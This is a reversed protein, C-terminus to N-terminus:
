NRNRAPQSARGKWAKIQKSYFYHKPPLKAAFASARSEWAKFDEKELAEPDDAISRRMDLVIAVFLGHAWNRKGGPLSDIHTQLRELMVSYSDGMSDSSLRRKFYNLAIERTVLEPEGAPNTATRMELVLTEALKLASKLKESQLKNPVFCALYGNQHDLLSIALHSNANRKTKDDWAGDNRMAKLADIVEEWKNMSEDRDSDYFRLRAYNTMAVIHQIQYDGNKPSKTVLKKRIEQSREYDQDAERYGPNGRGDEQLMVDGRSGFALALGSRYEDKTDDLQILKNWLEIAANYEKEAEQNQGQSDYLHGLAQYNRALLELVERNKPWRKRAQLLIEKAERYKGEVDGADEGERAHQAEAMLLRANALTLDDSHDPAFYYGALLGAAILALAAGALKWWQVPARPQEPVSVAVPAAHLPAPELLTRVDSLVEAASHYRGQGLPLCCKRAIAALGTHLPDGSHPLQSNAGQDRPIVAPAGAPVAPPTPSPPPSAEHTLEKRVKVPDLLFGLVRGFSYLDGPRADTRYSAPVPYESWYDGGGPEAGTKTDQGGQTRRDQAIGFDILMPRPKGSQEVHVLINSPKLDRHTIAHAHVYVLVELLDAAFLAVSRIGPDVVPKFGKPEWLNPGGHQMVYFPQRKIEGGYYLRPLGPHSLYSLIDHERRFRAGPTFRTGPTEEAPADSKNDAAQSPTPGPPNGDDILTPNLLKLAVPRGRWSWSAENVRFVSGFGGTGLRPLEEALTLGISEAIFEARKRVLLKVVRNIHATEESNVERCIRERLAGGQLGNGTSSAAWEKHIAGAVITIDIETDNVSTM